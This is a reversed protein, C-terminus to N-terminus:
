NKKYIGINNEMWNKLCLSAYAIDPNLQNRLKSLTISATSFIEKCSVSSGQIALYDQAIKALIPFRYKNDDW